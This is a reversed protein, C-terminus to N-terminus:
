GTVTASDALVAVGVTVVTTNAEMYDDNGCTSNGSMM